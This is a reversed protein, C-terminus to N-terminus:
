PQGRHMPLSEPRALSGDVGIGGHCVLVRVEDFFRRLIGDVGCRLVGVLRVFRMARWSGPGITQNAIGGGPFGNGAEVIM